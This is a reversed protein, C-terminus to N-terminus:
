PRKAQTELYDVKSSWQAFYQELLKEDSLKELITPPVSKSFKARLKTALIKRSTESLEKM